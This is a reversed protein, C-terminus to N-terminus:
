PNWTADNATMNPYGWPAGPRQPRNYPPYPRFPPRPGHGPRNAPRDGLERLLLIKILDGLLSNRRCNSCSRNEIVEENKNPQQEDRNQVLTENNLNINLQIAQNSEINTLVEEVMDDISKQTVPMTNVRCVKKVMPYVINYIEPYSDELEYVNLGFEENRNQFNSQYYNGYTRFNQEEYTNPYFGGTFGVLNQMYDEYM